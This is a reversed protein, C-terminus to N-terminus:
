QNPKRTQLGQLYWAICRETFYTRGLIRPICFLCIRSINIRRRWSLRGRKHTDMTGEDVLAEFNIIREWYSRGFLLVPVPKVKGTQILTLTEFLEDLTGFGGPFVVLARARMLFHMKRVAFYHFQFSLEPTVYPNPSQEMPLVINLGISEGGADHALEQDAAEM